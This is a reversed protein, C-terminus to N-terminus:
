DEAQGCHRDCVGEPRSYVVSVTLFTSYPATLTSVSSIQNQEREKVSAETITTMEEELKGLLDAIAPNIRHVGADNTPPAAVVGHSEVEYDM